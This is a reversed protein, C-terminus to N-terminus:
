FEQKMRAQISDLKKPIHSLHDVDEDEIQVEM